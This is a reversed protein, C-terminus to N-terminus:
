HRRRDRGGARRLGSRRLRLRRRDVRFVGATRGSGRGLRALLLKVQM